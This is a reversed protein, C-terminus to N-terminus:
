DTPRRATVNEGDFVFGSKDTQVGEIVPATKEEITFKTQRPLQM